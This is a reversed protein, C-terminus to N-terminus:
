LFNPLFSFVEKVLEDATNFNDKEWYVNLYQNFAQYFKKNFDSLSKKLIKSPRLAILVTIFDTNQLKSFILVGEELAIEQIAGGHFSENFISDVGKLMSAFINEDLEDKKTDWKYTYVSQGSQKEMVMLSIVTIPIFHLLGPKELHISLIFLVGVSLCIFLSGLIYPINIFWFLCPSIIGIIISSILLRKSQMRFADPTAKYRVVMYYFFIFWDFSFISRIIIEFIFIGELNWLVNQFNIALIIPNIPRVFSWLIEYFPSSILLTSLVTFLILKIPQIKDRLLLEGSSLGLYGAPILAFSGMLFALQRFLISDSILLGTTFNWGWLFLFGWMLTTYFIQKLKVKFYYIFTLVFVILILSSLIFGCIVTFQLDDIQM